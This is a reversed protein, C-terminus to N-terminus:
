QIIRWSPLASSQFLIDHCDLVSHIAFKLKFASTFTSSSIMHSVQIHFLGRVQKLTDIVYCRQATPRVLHKYPVRGLNM